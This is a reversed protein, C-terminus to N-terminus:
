VFNNRERGNAAEGVVQIDASLALLSRIGDRVLTHDDVIVYYSRIAYM